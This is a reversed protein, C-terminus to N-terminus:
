FGTGGAGILLLFLSLGFAFGFGAILMTVISKGLSQWGQAVDIFNVLIWLGYLGVMLSVMDALGPLVFIVVIVGLQAAARLAQLWIVLPLLDMLRARGGMLQGIWALVMSGIVMVAVMLALYLFPLNFGSVIGVRAELLTVSASFLLANLVAVLALATWIAEPRLELSLIREASKRPTRITEIALEKLPIM